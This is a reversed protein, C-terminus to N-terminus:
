LAEKLKAPIAPDSVKQIDAGIQRLKADLNAYGREIHYIDEIETVGHAALGAM